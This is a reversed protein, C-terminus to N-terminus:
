QKEWCTPGVGRLVSVPDKLTRGCRRCRGPRTPRM